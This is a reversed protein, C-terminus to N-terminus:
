FTVDAWVGRHDTGDVQVTGGDTCTGDRVLIHDIRVLPFRDPWTPATLGGGCDTLGATDLLDRFEPHAVTANFDGALVVPSESGAFEERLTGLDRSWGGILDSYAPPRTHVGVVETSMQGVLQVSPTQHGTLGRDATVTGASTAADQRVLVATGSAGGTDRVPATAVLGTGREVAAVEDPATESLILVDPDLRRTQAVISADDAGNFYTNLAMVRLTDGTDRTNGSGGSGAQTTVVGVPVAVAVALAAAVVPPWPSRRRWGLWCVVLTCLVAGAVGVMFVAQAAPVFWALRDPLAATIRWM